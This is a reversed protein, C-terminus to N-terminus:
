YHYILFFYFINLNLYEIICFFIIGHLFRGSVPDKFEIEIGHKGVEWDLASAREEFSHLMSLSITM